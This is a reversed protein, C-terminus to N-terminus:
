SFLDLQGDDSPRPPSAAPKADVLLHPWGRAALEANWALSLNHWTLTWEPSPAEETASQHFRDLLGRAEEIMAKDWTGERVASLLFRLWLLSAGETDWSVTGLAALRYSESRGWLSTSLALLVGEDFDRWELQTWAWLVASKAKEVDASVAELWDTLAGWFLTENDTELGEAIDQVFQLVRPDPRAVLDALRRQSPSLGTGAKGKVLSELTRALVAVPSSHAIQSLHTAVAEDLGEYYFHLALIFHRWPQFPSDRELAELAEMVEPEEMGNTVAEFADSVALAERRWVHTDALLPSDLILRPHILHSAAEELAQRRLAPQSTGMALRLARDLAERHFETALEAQSPISPKL